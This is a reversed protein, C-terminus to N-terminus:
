SAAVTPELGGVAEKPELAAITNRLTAVKQPITVLSGQEEDIVALFAKKCWDDVSETSGTSDLLLRILQEAADLRGWLYDNERVERSFFAYFHHDRTGEVKGGQPTPLITAERPSVRVVKIADGEGVQTLAQIPYLLIDWIPFGLYRIVLDRRCRVSWDAAIPVLKTLLAASFGHLQGALFAQTQGFLADIDSANTKVYTGGDLGHEDLFRTLTTEPFTDRVLKRLQEVQGNQEASAGAGRLQALADLAAVHEYLIQKGEDLENRSPFGDTGVCRYWWNFAAILFRLRRRMFGLDFAQLFSVQRDNPTFPAPASADPGRQGACPAVNSDREM